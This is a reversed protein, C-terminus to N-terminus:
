SCLIIEKSDDMIAGVLFLWDLVIFFRGTSITESLNVKEFVNFVTSRRSPADHLINLVLAGLHYIQREPKTDSDIIM